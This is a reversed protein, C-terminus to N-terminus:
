FAVSVGAMLKMGKVPVKLATISSATKGGNISLKDSTKAKGHNFYTSSIDISVRENVIIKFGVGLNYAFQLKRKGALNATNGVSDVMNYTSTKNSAVGVGATIYPKLKSGLNYEYNANLLVAQSNIKVKAQQHLQNMFNIETNKENVFKRVGAYEGGWKIADHSEKSTVIGPSVKNAEANSNTSIDNILKQYDWNPEHFPCNKKTNVKSATYNISISLNKNFYHGLGVQFSPNNVLKSNSFIDKEKNSKSTKSKNFNYGTQIKFYNKNQAEVQGACCLALAFFTIRKRM